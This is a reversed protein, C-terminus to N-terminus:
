GWRSVSIGSRGSVVPGLRWPNIREADTPPWGYESYREWATEADRATPLGQLDEPLRRVREPLNGYAYQCAIPWQAMVLSPGNLVADRFSATKIVKGCFSVGYGGDQVWEFEYYGPGDNEPARVRVVVTRGNNDRGYFTERKVFLFPLLERFFSLTNMPTAGRLM